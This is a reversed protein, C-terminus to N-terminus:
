RKGKGNLTAKMSDAPEFHIYKVDRPPLIEGTTFDMGRTNRQRVLLSGFGHLKVEGSGYLLEAAVIDLAANIIHSAAYKPIKTEKATLSILQDKTM